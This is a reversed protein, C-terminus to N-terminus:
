QDAIRAHALGAHEEPEGLIREVGGEDGGDTLADVMTKAKIGVEM